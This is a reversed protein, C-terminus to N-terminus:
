WIKCDNINNRQLQHKESEALRKSTYPGLTVRYWRNGSKEDTPKIRAEFGNLAIQAKLSEASSEKRFSGCQMIYSQKLSNPSAPIAQETPVEVIKDKLANHYSFDSESSQEAPVAQYITKASPIKKPTEVVTNIESKQMESIIAYYVLPGIILGAILYAWGPISTSQKKEGFRSASARKKTNKAFDKAM